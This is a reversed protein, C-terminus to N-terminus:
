FIYKKLIGVKRILWEFDKCKETKKRRTVRSEDADCLDPFSFLYHFTENSIRRYIEASIKVHM